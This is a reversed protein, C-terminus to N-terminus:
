LKTYVQQSIKTYIHCNNNNITYIIIKHIGIKVQQRIKTHTHCYFSIIPDTWQM